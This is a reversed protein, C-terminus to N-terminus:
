WWYTMGVLSFPSSNRFAVIALGQPALQIDGESFNFIVADDAGMAFALGFETHISVHRTPFWYIRMPVDVGFQTVDQQETSERTGSSDAVTVSATGTGVNFRAGISLAAHQSSLLFFHGGVGTAFFTAAGQNSDAFSIRSAGLLAELKLAGVGYSAALGTPGGIASAVGLGTKRDIDVAWASTIMGFCVTLFCLLRQLPRKM